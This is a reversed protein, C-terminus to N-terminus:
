QSPGLPRGTRRSRTPTWYTGSLQLEDIRREPALAESFHVSGDIDVQGLRCALADAKYPLDEDTFQYRQTGM